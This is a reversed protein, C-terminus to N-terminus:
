AGTKPVSFFERVRKDLPALKPLLHKDFCNKMYRNRFLDLFSCVLFILTIAGFAWVIFWPSDLHAPVDFVSKWLWPYVIPNEHILYVGFMAAAFKNIWPVYGMNWTKFLMFLGVSVVLSFFSSLNAFTFWDVYSMFPIHRNSFDALWVVAAIALWGCVFALRFYKRPMREEPKARNLYGGFVFMYVFWFLTSGYYEQQTTLTPVISWFIGFVVLFALVQKNGLSNFGIAIFPSLFMLMFYASVFWYADNRIPFFCAIFGPWSFEHIGCLTFIAYFLIVYFFTTLWLYALSSPKTIKGAMFYGTILVFLNVGIKGGTSLMQDLYFNLSMPYDGQWIPVGGHVSFHHAVILFM